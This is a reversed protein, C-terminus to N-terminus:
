QRMKQYMTGLLEQQIIGKLMAATPRATALHTWRWNIRELEPPIKDGMSDTSKFGGDLDFSRYPCSGNNYETSDITLKFEKGSELIFGTVYIIGKSPVPFYHVKSAVGTIQSVFWLLQEFSYKRKWRAFLLATEGSIPNNKIFDLFSCLEEAGESGNEGTMAIGQHELFTTIMRFFADSCPLEIMLGPNMHSVVNILVKNQGSFEQLLAERVTKGKTEVVIGGVSFNCNQYVKSLTDAYYERDSDSKFELIRKM